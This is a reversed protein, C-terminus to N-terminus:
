YAITFCQRRYRPQEVEDLTAVALDEASIRSQGQEDVVLQDGGTRYRGTREGLEVTAAPSVYTWDVGPPAARYLALADRHALAVGMWTAAFDSTEVLLVGPEVELSGAGGLVVLRVGTREAASILSRAAEVLFCPDGGHGPGVASLLVDQGRVLTAVSDADLIDGLRLTVGPLEQVRNPNRAAATVEHGRDVAEALIRQGLTGTAGYLLLRM